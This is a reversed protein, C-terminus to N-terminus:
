QNATKSKLNLLSIIFGAENIRNLKQQLGIPNPNKMRGTSSHFLSVRTRETRQEAFQLGM